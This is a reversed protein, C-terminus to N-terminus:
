NLFYLIKAEEIPEKHDPDYSTDERMSRQLM